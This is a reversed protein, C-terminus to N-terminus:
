RCCSCQWNHCMAFDFDFTSDTFVSDSAANSQNM